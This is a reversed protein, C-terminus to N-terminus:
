TEEYEDTPLVESVWWDPKSNSLEQEAWNVAFDSNTFPGHFLFGDVPNGTIAIWM